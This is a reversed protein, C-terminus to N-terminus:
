KLSFFKKKKVIECNELMQELINKADLVLNKDNLITSSNKKLIKCNKSEESSITKKQEIPSEFDASSNENRKEFGDSAKITRKINNLLGLGGSVKKTRKINKLLWYREKENEKVNIANPGNENKNDILNKDLDSNQDSIDTSKLRLAFAIIYMLLTMAVGIILSLEVWQVTTFDSPPDHYIDWLDEEGRKIIESVRAVVNGTLKTQDDNEYSENFHSETSNSYSETSGKIAKMLFRNSSELGRLHGHGGSANKLPANYKQVKLANLSFAALAFFAFVIKNSNTSIPSIM